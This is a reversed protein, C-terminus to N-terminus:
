LDPTTPDAHAASSPLLSPVALGARHAQLALALCDLAHWRCTAVDTLKMGIPHSSPPKSSNSSNQDLRAERDATRQEMRGIVAAFIVQAEPTFTGWIAEPVSGPRTM